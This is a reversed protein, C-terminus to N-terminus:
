VAPCKKHKKDFGGPCPGNRRVKTVVCTQRKPNIDGEVYLWRDGDRTFRGLEHHM